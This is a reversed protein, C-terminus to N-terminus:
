TANSRWYLIAKDLEEEYWFSAVKDRYHVNSFELAELVAKRQVISYGSFRDYEKTPVLQLLLRALLESIGDKDIELFALEIMRPMCHSFGETTLFSLPSWGAHGLHRLELEELTNASRMTDDHEECEECHLYDTFHEPRHCDAFARYLSTVIETRSM